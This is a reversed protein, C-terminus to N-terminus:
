IQEVLMQAVVKKKKTVKIGIGFIPLGLHRYKEAYGREKIQAIAKAATQDMKLEFIYVAKPLVLLLDMRGCNMMDEAVANLNGMQLLM